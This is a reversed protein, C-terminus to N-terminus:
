KGTKGEKRRIVENAYKVGKGKYPEPPRKRRIQAAVEGVAQKDIGKVIIKTADPVEFTIGNGEEFNVPHSFGLSLTIGKASKAVKYGVGNIELLKEFGTSVGTVM